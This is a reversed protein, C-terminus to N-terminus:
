AARWARLLAGPSAGAIRVCERGMHAQDAYGLEAALGAPGIAGAALEPLRRVLGAFRLVRQTAKPGLGVQAAFRRRLERAGLDSAAAAAQVTATPAGLRQAAAIVMRDPRAGADLRRSVLGELAEAQAGPDRLAALRTEGDVALSGWLDVLSISAGQLGPMSTGLIAGAAGCRLRLGVNRALGALPARRAIDSVVVARLTEGDWVLDACGDPLLRLTRAWGGEGAWACAVVESLRGDMIALERYWSRALPESGHTAADKLPVAM